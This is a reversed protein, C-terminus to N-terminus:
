IFLSYFIVEPLGSPIPPSLNDIIEFVAQVPKKDFYPPNGTLLELVTIGFSWVDSAKTAPSNEFLEPAM